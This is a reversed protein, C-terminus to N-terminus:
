KPCRRRPSPSDSVSPEPLDADAAPLPGVIILPAGGIATIDIPQLFPFSDCTAPELALSVLGEVDPFLLRRSDMHYLAAAGKGIALNLTLDDLTTNWVVYLREGSEPRDFTIVTARNDLTRVLPNRLTGSGFLQTMLRYADAAPRPTDPEPHQRFCAADTPNRYIGFADGFCIGGKCTPGDDPAFDTGGPQNGCDDYLQHYFIVSAGEALAYATSQIFFSAQQESTARLQREQPTKSWTPGPYDDWIPVGSENVWIPRQLKYAKLTQDVWNVLWGSRWPYSYSHLAVADMYWNYQERLPDEEFIALVWALWNNDSNFLLGGFMIETEPDVMKAVIYATKLLRAYDNISGEWFLSFDPENWVEWLRIGAGAPQGTERAWDGGPRYRSVAQRVFEAWANEPNLTKGPRPTDTGDSFIPKHLGAPRKGDRHFDPMGLLIANIKLGQALDDEVLRDYDAWDWEGAEPEVRNWYLPWRNWGAGLELAKQYREQPTVMEPGSIHNIGFRESRLYSPAPLPDTLAPADGARLGGVGVLLLVLVPTLVRTLFSRRM